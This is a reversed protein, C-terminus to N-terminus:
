KIGGNGIRKLEGQVSGVSLTLKNIQRNVTSVVNLMDKKLDKTSTERKEHLDKLSNATNQSSEKILGELKDIKGCVQLHCNTTKLDCADLTVIIKNEDEDFINSEIKELRSELAPIKKKIATWIMIAGGLMSTFIFIIMYGYDKLLTPIDM